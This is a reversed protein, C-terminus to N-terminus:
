EACRGAQPVRWSGLIADWQKMVCLTDRKEAASRAAEAFRRGMAGDKLIAAIREAFNEPTPMDVLFGNEEHRVLDRLDGVDSVVAPIGATMAEMLALSLGETKSTLVFVRSKELISPVDARQGAFEVADGLGLTEALTELERRLPGDGVIVARVGPIERKVVALARLLLDVQKIPALRGVFAVDWRPSGGGSGFRDADIGGSVVQIDGLIGRERFFAKGRSGMAVVLDFEAVSRVLLSEVMPDPAGLKEFLRNESLIGGGQVEAPGGVCFYISRGGGARAALSAILGNVLLHFGGVAHPRTRLAVCLFTVLRAPVKGVIGSLLKGPVIVEVKDIPPIPFHTVVRVSRCARSRSLPELHSRIWSGSHFTGTLLIDIGGEGIDKRKPGLFTALSMMMGHLGLLARVLLVVLRSRKLPRDNQKPM